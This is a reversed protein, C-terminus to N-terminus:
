KLEFDGCDFAIMQALNSIRFQEVVAGDDQFVDITNENPRALLTRTLNPTDSITRLPLGDATKLFSGDADIGIALEVKGPKDHQLPDPRLMQTIKEPQTQPTTAVAVLKGNELSFTQHAIIKKEFFSKWDSVAGETSDTTTRVLELGRFRQVLDNQEVVFIKEETTSAEICEPQPDNAVYELRRLLEHDNSLQKIQRPGSGALSDVFWSTGNRGPACDIPSILNPLTPIENCHVEFRAPIERTVAGTAQDCIFTTKKGGALDANIRLENNEMGLQWLHRVHLSKEDTVWDNFFYDVGEAKLDGVVYGRARYKGNPLPAGDDDNGDWVTELADHGPTFESVTDERHLIRVLKGAGNYIGLSITGELPPLAFRLLVRRPPALSPSPSPSPTPPPPEQAGVAVLGLVFFLIAIRM